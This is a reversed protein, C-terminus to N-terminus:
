AVYFMKSLNFPLIIDFWYTQVITDIDVYNDNDGNWDCSHSGNMTNVVNKPYFTFLITDINDSCIFFVKIFTYKIIPQIM